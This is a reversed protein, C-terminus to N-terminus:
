RRLWVVAVLLVLLIQQQQQQVRNEWTWCVAWVGAQTTPAKVVIRQM